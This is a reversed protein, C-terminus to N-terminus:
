RAADQGATNETQKILELLDKLLRQYPSTGREPPHPDGTQPSKAM